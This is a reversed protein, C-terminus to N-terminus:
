GEVEEHIKECDIVFSFPAVKHGLDFRTIFERAKWPVEGKYPRGLYDWHANAGVSVNTFGHERMAMAIPCFGFSYRYGKDIHEQEVDVTMQM